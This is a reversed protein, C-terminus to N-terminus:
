PHPPRALFTASAYTVVALAATGVMAASAKAIDWVMTWKHDAKTLSAAEAAEEERAKAQNIRLLNSEHQTELNTVRGQVETLRRGHEEQVQLMGPKADQDLPDKTLLALMLTQKKGQRRLERWVDPLAVPTDPHLEETPM